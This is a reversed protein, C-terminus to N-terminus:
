PRKLLQPVLAKVIKGPSVASGQLSATSNKKLPRMAPTPDTNVSPNRLTFKILSEFCCDPDIACRVRAVGKGYLRRAKASSLDSPIMIAQLDPNTCAMSYLSASSFSLSLSTCKPRGIARREACRGRLKRALFISKNSCDSGGRCGWGAFGFCFGPSAFSQVSCTQHPGSARVGPLHVPPQKGKM